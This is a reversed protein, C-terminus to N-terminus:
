ILLSLRLVLIAIPCFLTFLANQALCFPFYALLGLELKLIGM